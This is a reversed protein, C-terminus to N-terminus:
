RVDDEMGKNDVVDRIDNNNDHYKDKVTKIWGMVSLEGTCATFVCAILTDPVADKILFVIIMTVVFLLLFVALMKLIKDMTKM